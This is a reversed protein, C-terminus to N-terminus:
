KVTGVRVVNFRGADSHYRASPNFVILGVSPKANRQEIVWMGVPVPGPSKGDSGGKWWRLFIVTHNQGGEIANTQAYKGTERNFTALVTGKEIQMGYTVAEGMIWNESLRNNRNKRGAWGEQESQWAQPLRACQYINEGDKYGPHEGKAAQRELEDVNPVIWNSWHMEEPEGGGEDEVVTVTVEVVTVSTEEILLNNNGDIMEKAQEKTIAGTKILQNLHNATRTDAIDQDFRAQAEAIIGPGGFHPDFFGPDGGWFGSSVSSWGQSAAMLGLPDTQNVPDNNCYVYRNFSQPSGPDASGGYPDPATWRASLSDYERWLTHSMGTAEDQEMGAYKQRPGTQQEYGAVGARPGVTAAVEEGFPLYDQRAVVLQGNLPASRMTVRTSGQQDGMVYRTGNMFAAGGYEALLDGTMDYVMVRTVGGGAVTAVRQGGGDYVNRVAGSDDLNASRRQRNNADYEYKRLRFRADVTVNGANDYTLGSTLRNTTAAYAGDEVWSQAVQNNQNRAAKQYRNGYVDYDYNLLYSRSELAGGYHEGASALRGLSDYQFRQQWQRQAGVTSEISALQGNNKSADVAGTAMDVAGYRYEYKQLVNAGQTLAISSLQVRQADYAM